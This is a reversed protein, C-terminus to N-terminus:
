PAKHRPTENRLQLLWLAGYLSARSGLAAWHLRLSNAPIPKRLHDYLIRQLRERPFGAMMVVGGGLLLCEPDFLNVAAALGYALDRVFDQLDAQLALSPHRFLDALELGHQQALAELRRGCAYAELCDVNGCVCRRGEARIPVHGLEVAGGSAGRYPRGQQLFSGGIGTGIFAGLVSQAGQVAGARWEGMLLLNIDRELWVTVGLEERLRSALAVGELAPLNPSSLAYDHQHDLSVPLGLVVAEFQLQMAQAYARIHEALFAVADCDPQRLAASSHQCQEASVQVGQLGQVHGIRLHTGGIDLVLTALAQGNSRTM